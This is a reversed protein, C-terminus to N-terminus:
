LAMEGRRATCQDTRTSKSNQVILRERKRKAKAKTQTMCVFINTEENEFCQLWEGGGWLESFTERM